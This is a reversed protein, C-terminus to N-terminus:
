AIECDARDSWTNCKVSPPEPDNANYCCNQVSPNELCANGGKYAFVGCSNYQCENTCFASDVPRLGGDFGEGPEKGSCFAPVDNVGPFAMCTNSDVRQCTESCMDAKRPDGYAVAIQGDGLEIFDGVYAGNCMVDATCGIDSNYVCRQRGGSDTRDVVNGEFNCMDIVGPNNGLGCSELEQNARKGDCAPDCVTCDGFEGDEDFNPDDPDLCKFILDQSDEPLCSTGCVEPFIGMSFANSRCSGTLEGVLKGDCVGPDMGCESTCVCDVAFNCNGLPSCAGLCKLIGQQPDEANVYNAPNYKGAPSPSLSSVCAYKANCVYGGDELYASEFTGLNEERRSYDYITIQNSTIEGFIGCGQCRRHLGFQLGLGIERLLSYSVGSASSGDYFNGRNNMCQINTKEQWIHHSNEHFIDNMPNGCILREQTAAFETSGKFTFDQNCCVNTKLFENDGADGSYDVQPLCQKVMIPIPIQQSGTNLIIEQSGYGLDCQSFESYIDSIDINFEENCSTWGPFVVCNSSVEKSCSGIEWTATGSFGQGMILKIPDELTIIQETRDAVENYNKDSFGEYNYYLEVTPSYEVNATPDVCIRVIQYNYYQGDTVSVNIVTGDDNIDVEKHLIDKSREWSSQHVPNFFGFSLNLEDHYDPDAFEPEITVNTGPPVLVECDKEEQAYNITSLVPIRNGIAFRFEFPEGDLQIENHRIIYLDDKFFENMRHEIEYDLMNQSILNEATRVFNNSIDRWERQIASNPGIFLVQILKRFDIDITHTSSTTRVSEANSLEVALPVYVTFTISNDGILVNARVDEESIDNVEFGLQDRFFTMDLCDVAYEAIKFELQSRISQESLEFIIPQRHGYTCTELQLPNSLSYNCFHIGDTEVSTGPGGCATGFLPCPYQPVLDFQSRSLLYATKHFGYDLIDEAEENLLPESLDEDYYRMFNVNENINESTGPVSVNQFFGGQLSLERFATRASLSICTDVFTKVSSSTVLANALEDAREQYRQRNSQAMVSFVFILVVFMVFAIMIFVAMQSKKKNYM